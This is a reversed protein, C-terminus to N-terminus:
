PRKARMGAVAEALGAADLVDTATAGTGEDRLLWAYNDNLIPVPQVTVTM